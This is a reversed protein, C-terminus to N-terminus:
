ESVLAGGGRVPKDVYAFVCAGGGGKPTKSSCEQGIAQSGINDLCRDAARAPALEDGPLVEVVELLLSAAAHVNVLGLDVGVGECLVKELSLIYIDDWDKVGTNLGIVYNVRHKPRNMVYRAQLLYRCARPYVTPINPLYRFLLGLSAGGPISAYIVLPPPM